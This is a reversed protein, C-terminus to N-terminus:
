AVVRDGQAPEPVADRRQVHGVGVLRDGRAALADAAREARGEEPGDADLADRAVALEEVLVLDARALDQVGLDGPMM